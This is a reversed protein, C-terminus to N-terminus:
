LNIRVKGRMANILEGTHIWPKDSGKRRITSEANDPVSISRTLIIRRTEDAAKEAVEDFSDSLSNQTIRKPSLSLVRLAERIDGTIRRSVIKSSKALYPRPPIGRSEIGNELWSAIQGYTEGSPTHIKNDWGVSIEIKDLSDALTQIDSLKTGSLSTLAPTISKRERFTGNSNKLILKLNVSLSVTM